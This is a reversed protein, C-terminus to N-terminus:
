EGGLIDDVTASYDLINTNNSIYLTSGKYKYSNGSVDNCTIKLPIPHSPLKKVIIRVKNEMPIIDFWDITYDSHVIAKTLMTTPDLTTAGYNYLHLLDIDKDNIEGDQVVDLLAINENSLDVALGKSIRLANNLDTLDYVKNSFDANTAGNVTIVSSETVGNMEIDYYWLYKATKPFKYSHPISTGSDNQIQESNTNINWKSLYDDCFYYYNDNSDQKTKIINAINLDVSDTRQNNNFDSWGEFDVSKLLMKYIVDIDVDTIACDRDYDGYMHGEPLTITKIKELAPVLTKTTSSLPYTFYTFKTSGSTTLTDGILFNGTGDSCILSGSLFDSNVKSWANTTIDFLWIGTNAIVFLSNLSHDYCLDYAHNSGSSGGGTNIRSPLNIKTWTDDSLNWKYIYYSYFSSLFYYQNNAFDYVAKTWTIGSNDLKTLSTIDGNGLCIYGSDAGLIGDRVWSPNSIVTSNILNWDSSSIATTLEGEYYQYIGTSTQLTITSDVPTVTIWYLTGSPLHDAGDISFIGNNYSCVVISNGSIYYYTGNIYDCAIQGSTINPFNMNVVLQNDQLSYGAVAGTGNVIPTQTLFIGNGDISCIIDKIDVSATTNYHPNEFTTNYTAKPAVGGSVTNFLPM